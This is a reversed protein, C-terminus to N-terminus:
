ARNSIESYCKRLNGGGITRRPIRRVGRRRSDRPRHRDTPQLVGGSLFVACRGGVCDFLFIEKEHVDRISIFVTDISTKEPSIALFDRQPCLPAFDAKFLREM